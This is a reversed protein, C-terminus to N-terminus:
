RLCKEGGAASPNGEAVSVQPVFHPSSLDSSLCVEARVLLHPRRTCARTRPGAPHTCPPPTATVTDDDNVDCGPTKVLFITRNLKGEVAAQRLSQGVNDLMSVCHM